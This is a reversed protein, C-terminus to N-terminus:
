GADGRRVLESLVEAMFRAQGPPATGGVGIRRGFRWWVGPVVVRPAPTELMVVFGHSPKFAFAGREVTRIDKVRAMTRGTSDRLVTRTLEIYTETSTWLRYAMFGAAVTLGVYALATVPSTHVAAAGLMGCLVGLAVLCGTGLLRRPLSPYLEALIEDEPASESLDM